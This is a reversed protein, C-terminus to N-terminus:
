SFERLVTDCSVHGERERERKTSFEFLDEALLNLSLFGLSPSKAPDEHFIGSM